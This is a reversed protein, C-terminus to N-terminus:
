VTSSQPQDPDPAVPPPTREAPTRGDRDPGCEERPPLGQAPTAATSRGRTRVDASDTGRERVALAIVFPLHDSGCPKLNRLKLGRVGDNGLAHDLRAIRGVGGIPSVSKLSFSPKWAQGLSDILDILGADLLEQFEPRFRTSNLDGAIVLPGEVEPIFSKLAEIQAKWTEYGGPDVTAMPNLVAVTTLVGGIDLRAVALNLPGIRRMGSGPALPLSSAIAIAYDSTDSPDLVRHPHSGKGGASDFVAMFAPTAEAIALVEAGCTIIQTAAAEPTPNDVFVNAVALRLRPAHRAWRPVRDSIMRPVVLVLQYITLVGATAALAGHHKVLAAVFIVPAAFLLLPMLDYAVALFPGEDISMLRQIGHAVVIVVLLGCILWAAAALVTV